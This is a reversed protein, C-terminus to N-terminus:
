QVQRKWLRIVKDQGGSALLDGKRTFAVCFVTGAHDKIVAEPKANEVNLIRLIGEDDGSALLKSDPSFSVCQVRSKGQMMGRETRSKVDWFRIRGDIGGTAMVAGNPSFEIAVVAAGHGAVVALQQGTMPDWLRVTKDQGGTAVLKRDPSFAACEVEGELGRCSALRTTQPSRLDFEYQVIDVVNKEGTLSRRLFTKGDSAIALPHMSESRFGIGYDIPRGDKMWKQGFAVHYDHPGRFNVWDDNPSYTIATITTAFKQPPKFFPHEHKAEVDWVRVFKADGALLIPGPGFAMSYLTADHASIIGASSWEHSRANQEKTTETQALCQQSAVAVQVLILLFVIRSTLDLRM